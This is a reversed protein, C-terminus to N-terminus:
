PVGGLGARTSALASVTRLTSRTQFLPTPKHAHHQERYLVSERDPM